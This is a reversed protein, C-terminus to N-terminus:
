TTLNHNFYPPWMNSTYDMSSLFYTSKDKNCYIMWEIVKLLNWFENSLIRNKSQELEIAAISESTQVQGSINRIRGRLVTEPM